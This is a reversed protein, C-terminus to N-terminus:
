GCNGYWKAQEMCSDSMDQDPDGFFYLTGAAPDTKITPRIAAGPKNVQVTIDQTVTTQAFLATQTFFLAMCFFTRERNRKGTRRHSTYVM